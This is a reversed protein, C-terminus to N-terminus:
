KVKEWWRSFIGPGNLDVVEGIMPHLVPLNKKSAELTVRKISDDWDHLSLSFKAWHVPLIKKAKLDFGAQVTEEPMMHIYKWYPNYQGCELIALDFPGYKNGIEAFHTDYGSDGGLFLKMSPTQLIFSMWLSRNRKFTRGAFHRASATNVIFGSELIIEDKWDKEFIKKKDFGWFELHAATGLSTIVQKVMPKLKLITEYDLHDWHDHSLFLYDIEPLDGTTYVDSGPFSKTTPLPSANGSFVPDVLIKKGDIQIFYSSHGFWVLYNKSPDLHLLDTKVSPL